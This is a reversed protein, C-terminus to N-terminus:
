EGCIEFNNDLPGIGAADVRDRFEVLGPQDEFWDIREQEYENVPLRFVFASFSEAFDEEPDSAAYPGLFGPNLECREEGAAASPEEDPDLEGLLDDDWFTLIWDWILSDETFCGEGNDYTTCDEPDVFRDLEFPLSTFVHSFEHAMTLAFENPDNEAEALNVSMQFLTGDDDLSNVFALTVEDEDGSAYGGFLGLDGLQGGPAITSLLEWAELLTPDEEGLCVAGLDGDVVYHATTFDILDDEGLGEESCDVDSRTATPDFGGGPPFTMDSTTPTATTGPANTTAVSTATAATTPATVDDGCAATILALALTLAIRTRM